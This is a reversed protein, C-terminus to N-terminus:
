FGSCTALINIITRRELKAKVLDTAFSQIAPVDLAM